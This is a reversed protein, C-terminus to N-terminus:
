PSCLALRCLGCAVCHYHSNDAQLDYHHPCDRQLARLDSQYRRVVDHASRLERELRIREWTVLDLTLPM